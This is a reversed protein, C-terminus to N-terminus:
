SSSNRSGTLSHPERRLGVKHLSFSSRFEVGIDRLSTEVPVLISSVLASHLTLQVGLSSGRDRFEGQWIGIAQVKVM